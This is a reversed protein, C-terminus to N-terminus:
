IDENVIKKNFEEIIKDNPYREFSGHLDVKNKLNEAYLELYTNSENKNKLLTQFPRILNTELEYSYDQGNEIVIEFSADDNKLSMGSICFSNKVNGEVKLIVKANNLLFNKDSIPDQMTLIFIYDFKKNLRMWSHFTLNLDNEFFKNTENSILRLKHITNDKFEHFKSYVSELSSISKPNDLYDDYFSYNLLQKFADEFFSIGADYTFYYRDESVSSEWGFRWEDLDKEWFRSRRQLFCFNDSYVKINKLQKFENKGYEIRLNTDMTHNLHDVLEELIQELVSETGHLLEDLYKSNVKNEPDTFNIKGKYKESNQLVERVKFTSNSNKNLIKELESEISFKLDRLHYDKKSKRIKLIIKDPLLKNKTEFQYIIKGSQLEDQYGPFDETHEFLGDIKEDSYLEYYFDSDERVCTLHMDLENVYRLDRKHYNDPNYADFFTSEILIRGKKYFDDDHPALVSVFKRDKVFSSNGAFEEEFDDANFHLNGSLYRDLFQQGWLQGSQYFSNNINKFDKKIQNFVTGSLISIAKIGQKLFKDKHSKKGDYFYELCHLIIASVFLSRNIRDKKKKSDFLSGLGDLALESQQKIGDVPYKELQPDIYADLEKLVSIFNHLAEPSYSPGFM